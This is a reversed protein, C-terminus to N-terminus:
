KIIGIIRILREHVLINIWVTDCFCYNKLVIESIKMKMFIIVPLLWELLLLFM